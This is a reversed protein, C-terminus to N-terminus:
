SHWPEAATRTACALNTRHFRGQHLRRGTLERSCQIKVEPCRTLDSAGNEGCDRCAVVLHCNELPRVVHPFIDLGLFAHRIYKVM